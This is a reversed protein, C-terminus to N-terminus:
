LINRCHVGGVCAARHTHVEKQPLGSVAAVTLCAPSSRLSHHWHATHHDRSVCRGGHLVARLLQLRPHLLQLRLQLFSSHLPPHQHLLQTHLLLGAGLCSSVGDAKRYPGRAAKTRPHPM